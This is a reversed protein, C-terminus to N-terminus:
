KPHKLAYWSWFVSMPILNFFPLSYFVLTTLFLLVKIGANNGFIPNSGAFKLIFYIIGLKMWGIALTFLLLIFFLADFDVETFFSALGEIISTAANVAFNSDSAIYFGMVVLLTISLMLQPIYMLATVSAIALKATGSVIRKKPKSVFSQKKRPRRVPTAVARNYPPTPARAAERNNNAPQHQSDVEPATKDDLTTRYRNQYQEYRQRVSRDTTQQASYSSDTKGSTAYPKYQIREDSTSENRQQPKPAPM